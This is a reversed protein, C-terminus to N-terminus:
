SAKRPMGCGPDDARVTPKVTTDVRAIAPYCRQPGTVALAANREAVRADIWRAVEDSCWVSLNSSLKVPRPFKGHAALFYIQSKSLGVAQVVQRTRLFVRPLGPIRIDTQNISGAAADFPTVVSSPASYSAHRVTTTSTSPTLNKM